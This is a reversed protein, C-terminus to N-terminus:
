RAARAAAAPAAPGEAIAWLAVVPTVVLAEAAAFSAKFVVFRGLGHQTVGLAVHALLVPPAFVLLGAGGLALGRALTGRPLWGLWPQTDRSWGLPPEVCGAQKRGRSCIAPPGETGARAKHRYQKENKGTSFPVAGCECKADYAHEAEGEAAVAVVVVASAPRHQRGGREGNSRRGLIRCVGGDGYSGVGTRSHLARRGEVIQRGPCASM